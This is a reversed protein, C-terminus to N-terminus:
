EQSAPPWQTSVRDGAAGALRADRTGAPEAAVGPGRGAGGGPRRYFGARACRAIADPLEADAGRPHRDAGGGERQGEERRGAGVEPLRNGTASRPWAGGRCRTRHLPRRAACRALGSACAATLPHLHLFSVSRRHASASSASLRVTPWSPRRRHRLPPVRLWRPPGRTTGLSRQAFEHMFASESPIQCTSGQHPRSSFTATVPRLLRRSPVASSRVRRRRRWLDDFPEQRSLRACMPTSAAWRTELTPPESPLQLAGRCPRSSGCAPLHRDRLAAIPFVRRSALVHGAGDAAGFLGSALSFSRWRAPPRGRRQQARRM